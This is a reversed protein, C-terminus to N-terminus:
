MFFHYLIPKLFIHASTLFSVFTIFVLILQTWFLWKFASFGSLWKYLSHFPIKNADILEQLFMSSPRHIRLDYKESIEYSSCLHMGGCKSLLENSGIQYYHDKSIKILILVNLIFALLFIISRIKMEIEKTFAITFTLGTLTIAVVLSQWLMSDRNVWDLSMQQYEVKMLEFLQDDSFKM